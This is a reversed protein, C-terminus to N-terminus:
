RHSLIPNDCTCLNDEKDLFSLDLKEVIINPKKNGMGTKGSTHVQQEPCNCYQCDSRTSTSITSKPLTILSTDEMHELLELDSCCCMSDSPIIKVKRKITKHIDRATNPVGIFEVRRPSSKESLDSSIRLNQEKKDNDNGQEM